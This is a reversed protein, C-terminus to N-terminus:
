SQRLKKTVVTEYQLLTIKKVYMCKYWEHIIGSPTASADPYKEWVGENQLFQKAILFVASTVPPLGMAAQDCDIEPTFATVGKTAQYM